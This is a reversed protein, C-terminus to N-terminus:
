NVQAISKSTSCDDRTHYEKLINIHCLQRPKRRDPTSVVYNVDNVCHKITYPGHYRAQLPHGVIPLLVLVQDGVNFVRERVKGHYWVKMQTQVRCNKRVLEGAELLRTKFATVYELLSWPDDEVALWSEKLMKLPGRVMHGFVL